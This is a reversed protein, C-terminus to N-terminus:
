GRFWVNKKMTLIAYFLLWSLLLVSLLSMFPRYTWTNSKPNSIKALCGYLSGIIFIGLLYLLPSSMNGGLPLYIIHRIAIIPGILTFLLGLYYRCVIAPNKRWYFSGTFFFNRIFSKKWRTNQKILKNFNNPVITYAVASRCYVINWNNTKYNVDKVFPSDIYKKKLNEGIYKSGLVYGTLQRDTAFRFESGLFTDNIWAPIYNWIAEKRFFALPGSVCSVSGYVSETAKKISFQTEYWSDQIETLINENANLVRVHGSVAGVNPYHRFIEISREIANPELVTDSDTFVFIDGKSIKMGEAIAKKKGVNKSLNIITVINKYEELIERTKDTSCDNVVIIEKNEYTSNLLSNICKKIAFEENYVAIICSIMPLKERTQINKKTIEEYLDKYRFSSVYFSFFIASTVLIGYM